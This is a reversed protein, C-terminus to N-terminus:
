EAEITEQQGESYKVNNVQNPEVIRNRKVYKIYKVLENDSDIGYYRKMHELLNSTLFPAMVSKPINRSLIDGRLFEFLSPATRKCNGGLKVTM